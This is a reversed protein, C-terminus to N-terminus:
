AGTSPLPAGGITGAAESAAQAEARARLAAEALHRLTRNNRSDALEADLGALVGAVQEDLASRSARADFGSTGRLADLAHKVTIQGLDRAPVYTKEARSGGELLIGREVLRDLVEEVPRPTLALDQALQAATWSPGGELFSGGIRALSRLALAERFAQESDPV